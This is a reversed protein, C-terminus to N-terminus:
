TGAVRVARKYVFCKSLVGGVQSEVLYLSLRVNSTSYLDGEYMNWLGLVIEQYLYM